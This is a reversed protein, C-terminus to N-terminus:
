DHITDGFNDTWRQSDESIDHNEIAHERVDEAVTNFARNHKKALHQIDTRFTPFVSRSNVFEEALESIDTDYDAAEQSEERRELMEELQQEHEDIEAQKGAITARKDRIQPDLSADALVSEGQRVQTLMDNIFASKNDYHEELWEANEETVSASIIEKSM